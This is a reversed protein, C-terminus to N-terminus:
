PTSFRRGLANHLAGFLLLAFVIEFVNMKGDL